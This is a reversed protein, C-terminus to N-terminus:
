PTVQVTVRDIGNWLYGQPNWPTTVVQSHGASDTARSMLLYKGTHEPTWDFSWLRWAYKAQEAGLKAAHWAHGGDTSVGVRVIKNEGAWAAGEIHPPAQASMSFESGPPPQAIVSKVPLSTIPISVSERVAAVETTPHAIPHAPLRYAFSMYYGQYERPLVRIETLWKISASGTWGPVLARLPYGHEATLPAGNMHTALPTDTDIAKQLPISRIFQEADQPAIDLGRFAIHRAAPKLGASMLLKGLSPGRFIANGVGGREWQVGGVRPHFFVRGNGACELTNTVERTELEAIDRLTLEIPRTVEGTVRLRWDDLAFAPMLLNDRVFFNEVPTIWSRLLSMPMERTVYERSYVIMRASAGPGSQAGAQSGSRPVWAARMLGADCFAAAGAALFSRRSIGRWPM